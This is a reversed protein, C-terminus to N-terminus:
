ILRFSFCKKTDSLLLFVKELPHSAPLVQMSRCSHRRALSACDSFCVTITVTPKGKSSLVQAWSIFLYNFILALKGSSQVVLLSPFSLLSDCDLMVLTHSPPIGPIVSDQVIEEPGLSQCSPERCFGAECM